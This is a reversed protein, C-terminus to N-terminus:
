AKAKRCLGFSARFKSGAPYRNFGRAELTVLSLSKKNVREVRARTQEGRGKGFIVVDGAKFSVAHAALQAAAAERAPTVFRRGLLQAMIDGQSPTRRTSRRSTPVTPVSHCRKPSEGMRTMVAKWEWGHAKARPHLQKTVLHALEHVTTNRRKEPSARRWLASGSLKIQQGSYRAKGMTSTLRTSMVITVRDAITPDLDAHALAERVIQRAVRLEERQEAPTLPKLSELDQALSSLTKM